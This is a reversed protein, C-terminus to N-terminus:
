YLSTYNTRKMIVDLALNLAMITRNSFDLPSLGTKQHHIAIVGKDAQMMTSGWWHFHVGAVDLGYDRLAGVYIEATSPEGAEGPIDPLMAEYLHLWTGNICESSFLAANALPSNSMLGNIVMKSLHDSSSRRIDHSIVLVGNDITPQEAGQLFSAFPFNTQWFGLVDHATFNDHNECQAFRTCNPRDGTNNGGLVPRYCLKCSSNQVCDLGGDACTPDYELYGDGTDPNPDQRCICCDDSTCPNPANCLGM